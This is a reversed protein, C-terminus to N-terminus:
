DTDAPPPKWRRYVPMEDDASEVLIGRAVDVRRDVVEFRIGAVVRRREGTPERRAEDHRAVCAIEVACEAGAAYGV